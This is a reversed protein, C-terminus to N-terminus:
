PSSAPGSTRRSRWSSASCAASPTAAQSRRTTSTWRRRSGSAVCGRPPATPSSPAAPSTLAVFAEHFDRSLHFEREIINPVDRYRERFEMLRSQLGDIDSMLRESGLPMTHYDMRILEVRHNIEFELAREALWAWRTAAQMVNGLLEEYMGALRYWNSANMEREALFRLRDGAFRERFRELQVTKGAILQEVEAISRAFELQRLAGEAQRVKAEYEFKQLRFVDEYGQGAMTSALGGWSYGVSPGSLSLGFSFQDAFQQIGIKYTQQFLDAAARADVVASGAAGVQGRAMDANLEAERAREEAIERSTTALETLHAAEAQNLAEVEARDKFQLYRSELVTAREALRLAADFLAKFRHAPVYEDHIGLFNLHSAIADMRLQAHERLLTASCAGPRPVASRGKGGIQLDM